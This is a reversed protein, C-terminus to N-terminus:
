DNYILNFELNWYVENYTKRVWECKLNYKCLKCKEFKTKQRNTKEIKWDFVKNNNIWDIETIHDYEEWLFKEIFLKYNIKDIKYFICAPVSDFTIRISYKLSIYILQKLYPLFETYSIKLDDWNEKIDEDLWIFNIRIDKIKKVKFFFLVTKIISKLNYSNLVINISLPQLNGEKIILNINDIANLKRILWWKVGTLYDEIEEQHSHISINFRTLWSKIINKTFDFSDFRMWNTIIHIELFWVKKCYNILEILKPYISVDWWLFWISNYWKEIYWRVKEKLNDIEAFKIDYLEPKSSMCFRCKNNCAKWINIEIHKVKVM